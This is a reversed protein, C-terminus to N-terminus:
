CVMASENYFSLSFFCRYCERLVNLVTCPFLLMPFEFAKLEQLLCSDFGTISKLHMKKFCSHKMDLNEHLVLM